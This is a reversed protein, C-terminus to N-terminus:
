FGIGLMVASRFQIPKVPVPQPAEYPVEPMFTGGSRLELFLLPTIRFGIGIQYSVGPLWREHFRMEQVQQYKSITTIEEFLLPYEGYTKKVVQKDLTRTFQHNSSFKHWTCTVEPEFTWFLRRGYRHTFRWGLDFTYSQFPTNDSIVPLLSDGSAITNSATIIGYTQHWTVQAEETYFLNIDGNFLGLEEPTNHTISQAGFTLSSQKSLRLEYSAAMSRKGAFPYGFKFMHHMTRWQKVPSVPITDGTFVLQAQLSGALLLCCCLQIFKCRHIPHLAVLRICSHIKTDPM